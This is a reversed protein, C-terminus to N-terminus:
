TVRPPLTKAEDIWGQVVATSPVEPLISRAANVRALRITLEGADAVSLGVLSHVHAADLLNAEPEDIGVIRLLDALQGWQLLLEPTADVQSALTRRQPHTATRIILEDPTTIDVDALKAANVTGISMLRVLDTPPHAPKAPKPVAEIQYHSIVDSFRDRTAPDDRVGALSPDNRAWSTSRRHQELGYALHTLAKTYHAWRQTADKERRGAISYYCALNYSTRYHNTQTEIERVIPNADDVRDLMVLISARMIEAVPQLWGLLTVLQQDRKRRTFRLLTAEGQKNIVKEIVLRLYTAQEHACCLFYQPNGPQGCAISTWSQPLEARVAAQMPAPQEHVYALCAALLYTARYWIDDHPPHTLAPRSDALALSQALRLRAIAKDFEGTEMNASGLNFLAGRNGYDDRLARAYLQKAKDLDDDNHWSLGVTFLAYSRWHETGLPKFGARRHKWM